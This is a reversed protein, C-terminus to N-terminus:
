RTGPRAFKKYSKVFRLLSTFLDSHSLTLMEVCLTYFTKLFNYCMTYRRIEVDTFGKVGEKKPPKQKKAKKSSQKTKEQDDSSSSFDDEVFEKSKVKKSTTLSVGMQFLYIVYHM